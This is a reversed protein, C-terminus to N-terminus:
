LSIMRASRAWCRSSGLYARVPEPLLRAAHGDASGAPVLKGLARLEAELAARGHRRRRGRALLALCDGDEEAVHGARGLEPLRGIGLRQAREEGAIELPHPLDDLAVAAGDLLEDAVCHHGDEADRDHVLVVRQAGAPGRDLHAVGQGSSPIRPRMPTLVPSTTVPVSSRSAVPSATLTAARSSCAASGPSTRIPASVTRSTRSATSSPSSRRSSSFPFDSGTGAKGSSAATPSALRRESM